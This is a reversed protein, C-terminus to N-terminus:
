RSPKFAARRFSLLRLIEDILERTRTDFQTPAPYMPWWVLPRRPIKGM